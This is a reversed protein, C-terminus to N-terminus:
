KLFGKARLHSRHRERFECLERWAEQKANRSQERARLGREAEDLDVVHPVVDQGPQLAQVRVPFIASCRGEAEICEINRTHYQDLLEMARSVIEDLEVVERAHLNPKGTEMKV